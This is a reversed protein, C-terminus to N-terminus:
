GALYRLVALMGAPGDVVVDAAALLAPPAEDSRVAVRAHLALRGVAEFAPLDGADDGGVCAADIGSEAALAAVATGKDMVLPPRLEVSRRAAHAVLGRAEAQEQAFARAWAEAEPHARYHLTVSCGKDEVMGPAPAAAGALAAVEAIVPAWPVAEPVLDIGARGVRELGYSGVRVLGAVPLQTALFRAPRGSVVAVLRFRAVLARLVTVAGPLPRALAPDVVIPALTGDFDVLVGAEPARARLESLRSCPDGDV